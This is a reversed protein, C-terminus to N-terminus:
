GCCSRQLQNFHGTTVMSTYGHQLPTVSCKRGKLTPFKIVAFGYPDSDCLWDRWLLLYTDKCRRVEKIKHFNESVCFLQNICHVCRSEVALM